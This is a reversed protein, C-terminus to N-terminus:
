HAAKRRRLCFIAGGLGILAYTSPEPVVAFGPSGIDLNASQVAGNEGAVSLGLNNGYHDAELTIGRTQAPYTYSSLLTGAPDYFFVSDNLSGLGSFVDGDPTSDDVMEDDALIVVSAPLGWVARWANKDFSEEELIIISEGPNIILAPFFNPEPTPGSLRDDEDAWQYGLLNVPTGGTNTLEWWDGNVTSAAASAQAMVETIAFQARSDPTGLLAALALVPLSKALHSM